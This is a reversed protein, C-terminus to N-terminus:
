VIRDIFACGIALLLCIFPPGASKAEFSIPNLDFQRYSLLAAYWSYFSTYGVLMATPFALAGISPMLLVATALYITGTVGNAIHWLIHNSLSYLQLHMAGFREIFFAVGLYFWFFSSVFPTQSGLKHLLWPLLLGVSILGSVYVWHSMAMAKCGLGAVEERKGEAYLSALRPLKTYFPAMSIQLVVHMMKMALLYSASAAPTAIQAYMIGSAQIIAHSMLVGVGSRWAAPWVHDYVSQSPKHLERQPIELSHFIGLGVGRVALSTVVSGLTAAAVAALLNETLFLVAATVATAAVATAAEVRRLRAIENMGQVWQAYLSNRFAFMSGALFIAWSAWGEGQDALESVPRVLALTGLVLAAAGGIVALRGYCGRRVVFIDGLLQRYATPQRGEASDLKARGARAYSIARVFSPGFGFDAM